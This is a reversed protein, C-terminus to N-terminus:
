TRGCHQDWWFYWIPNDMLGAALNSITETGQFVIDSCYAFQENAVAMADEQTKPPRAFQMEIVDGSIGVFQAGYVSSWRRHIAVHDEPAPCENWNGWALVAPVHVPDDVPVVAVVTPRPEGTVIDKPLTYFSQGPDSEPWTGVVDDPDIPRGALSVAM